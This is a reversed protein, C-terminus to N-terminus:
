WGDALLWQEIRAAFVIDVARFQTANPRITLSLRPFELAIKPFITDAVSSRSIRGSTLLHGGLPLLTHAKRRPSIARAAASRREVETSIACHPGICGRFM